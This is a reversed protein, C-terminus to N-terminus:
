LGQAVMSPAECALVFTSRLAQTANSRSEKRAADFHEQLIQLAAAHQLHEAPYGMVSELMQALAAPVDSSRFVPDTEADVVLAAINECLMEVGARQFLTPEGPVIPLESGRSFGDAPVTNALRATAAQANGPRPVSLACVDPKGLRQSLAACLHDRRTISLPMPETQFTKTPTVGTILPSSFLEAILVRLDYKKDQFERVVRRFEPDSKDCAVSNSFFCLKQTLEVAFANLPDAAQDTAQALLGGLELMNAGQANMDLFALVGGQTTPRPNKATMRTGRAPFDNRDNFDFQNDWFARLPDLGVHCGYCESGDVAHAADLGATSLPFVASASTYSSGYAVLLTQNATVRHQNSDNTNWIALFAPTTYYGIRPLSLPLEKLTRLRPLDYALPRTEGTNLPRITVWQWDSLDQQSFYPRSAHEYCVPMNDLSYRPTHGLLRQFLRSQGTFAASSIAAGMADVGTGAACTQRDTMGNGLMMAPAAPPQDDFVLYNPSAPDLTQEIPIANGSYDIKWSITDASAAGRGFARDNPAEIQLYLSKLATTLMFRQTTLVETFPRGEQVIQWATLAFSDELNQVIRAFADDGLARQGGMFDFGGNPLLQNQFDETPLFGTQQFANRFFFLLKDRFAGSTAADEMYSRVLAKLGAQGESMVRTVEADTIVQGTLIGKVKRVASTAQAATLPTRDDGTTATIAAAGARGATATAGAASGAAAHDGSAAATAASDKQAAGGGGCAASLGLSLASM